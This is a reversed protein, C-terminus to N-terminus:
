TDLVISKGNGEASSAKSMMQSRTFPEASCFIETANLPGTDATIQVGVGSHQAVFANAKQAASPVINM